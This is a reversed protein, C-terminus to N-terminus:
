IKWEAEGLAANMRELDPPGIPIEGVHDDAAFELLNGFPDPFYLSAQGPPGLRRPGDLPVGRARLRAALPELDVAAVEFALHPHPRLQKRPEGVQMFLHLDLGGCRLELHLPSGHSESTTALEAVRHPVLRAFAEADVRRVLSLGLMDVYFREALELDGIPLTFHSIGRLMPAPLEVPPDSIDM